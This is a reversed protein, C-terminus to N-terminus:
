KLLLLVLALVAALVIPIAAEAPLHFSGDLFPAVASQRRSRHRVRRLVMRSFSSPARVAPLGRVRAVTEEFTSLEEACGACSELHVVLKELEAVPLEHDVFASFLGTVESHSQLSM